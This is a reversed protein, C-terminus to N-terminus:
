RQTKQPNNNATRQSVRRLPSQMAPSHPVQTSNSSQQRKRRRSANAGSAPALAQQNSPGAESSQLVENEERRADDYAKKCQEVCADAEKVDRDAQDYAVQVWLTM